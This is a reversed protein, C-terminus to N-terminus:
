VIVHIYMRLQYQWLCVYQRVSLQICVIESQVNNTTSYM